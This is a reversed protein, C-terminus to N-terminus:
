ERRGGGGGLDPEIGVILAEGGRLLALSGKHEEYGGGPPTLGAIAELGLDEGVVEYAVDQSFLEDGHPEGVAVRLVRPELKGTVGGKEDEVGGAVAKAREM